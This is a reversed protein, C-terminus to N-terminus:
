RRCKPSKVTELKWGVVVGKSADPCEFSVNNYPPYKQNVPEFVNEIRKVMVPLSPDNIDFVLMDRYNDAYLFHGKVALEKSFPINLFATKRPHKKDSVDIIHIGTNKDNQFIYNGYVYIKGPDVTAKPLETSIQELSQEAYYVPVYAQAEFPPEHQPDCAAMIMVVCATILIMFRKM